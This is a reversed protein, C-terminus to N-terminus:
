QVSWELLTFTAPGTAFVGHGAGGNSGFV